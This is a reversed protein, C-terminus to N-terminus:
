ELAAESGQLDPILVEVHCGPVVRRVARIAEAFMAAGGDTLDDRTVSTIVAYRLGLTRVTEAIRLPEEADVTRPNGSAVNCFGCRRTCIDGLILFTATGSNWCENRNPCAASECVTHLRGNRIASRVRHYRGNTSLRVQFWEPLRRRRTSSPMM